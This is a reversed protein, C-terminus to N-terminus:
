RPLPTGMQIRKEVDPKVVAWFNSPTLIAASSDAFVVVGREGHHNGPVCYAVVQQQAHALDPVPGPATYGYDTWQGVTSLSGPKHGTAPCIFALPNPCHNTIAQLSLPPEGTEHQHMTIGVAIARLNSLCQIERARHRAAQLPTFLVLGVIGCDPGDCHSGKVPRGSM